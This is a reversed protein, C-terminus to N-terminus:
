TLQYVGMVRGQMERPTRAQVVSNNLVSYLAGVAVLLLLSVAYSRSLAYIVILGSFAIAALGSVHPRGYREGFVAIGVSGALAGIGAATLMIGIAAKWQGLIEEAFVPTLSQYTMAFMAPIASIVMLAWIAEHTVIFRGGEKLNTLASSSNLRPSHPLRLLVVMVVQGLQGLAM